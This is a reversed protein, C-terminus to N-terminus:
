MGQLFGFNINYYEQWTLVNDRNEDNNHFERKTNDEIYRKQTNTIWERLEDESVLGDDDTDIKDFIIRFFFKHRTQKM